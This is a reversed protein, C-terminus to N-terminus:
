RRIIYLGLFTLLANLLIMEYGVSFGLLHKLLEECAFATLPGMLCVVAVWREKLKYRTMLGFGFLALIPGYTYGAVRYLLHILTGDSGAHLLLMTGFLALALCLHCGKRRTAEQELTRHSPHIDRMWATTLATLSAGASSYTSSVLGLVFLVGVWWPLGGKLAVEGFLADGKSTIGVEPAYGYLIVGLTLLLAIVVAQTLTTLIVNYQAGRLTRCSLNRQMMDQDLGTMAILIFAGGILLRWWAHPSSGKYLLQSLPSQWAEQCLEWSGKNTAMAVAVITGVVAGVLCLSQVLDSWVVSRVGGRHTYGWVIGVELLMNVWLPIGLPDFLLAQLVITAALLKFAALILKSFLFFLAGTRHSEAGFRTGLYEYLSITGRRYFLPLLVTAIVIQGFTFGAVMMLYSMGDSEVSGPVSIFSVGSMPAGIMGVAVWLWGISREASYFSGGRGKHAVYAAVGFLLAVYGVLILLIYIPTLM